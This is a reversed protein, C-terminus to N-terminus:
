LQPASKKLLIPLHFHREQERERVSFVQKFKQLGYFAAYLFLRWLPSSAIPCVVFSHGKVHFSVCKSGGSVNNEIVGPIIDPIIYPQSFFYILRKM